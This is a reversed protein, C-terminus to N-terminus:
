YFESVDLEEDDILAESYITPAGSVISPAGIEGSLQGFCRVGTAYIGKNRLMLSKAVKKFVERPIVLASISLSISEKSSARTVVLTFTTQFSSIARLELTFSSGVGPAINSIKYDCTLTNPESDSDPSVEIRFRDMGKGHNSLFVKLKYVFGESVCGFSLPDPKISISM